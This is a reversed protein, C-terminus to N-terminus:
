KLGAAARLQRALQSQVACSIAKYARNLESTRLDEPLQEVHRQLWQRAEGGLRGGTEVVFATLQTGPYRAHKEREGRRAAEGPKRAAVGLEAMSGAMATRVSVDIWRRCNDTDSYEIDLIARELVPEGAANRKMRDWALVRQETQVKQKTWRHIIGGISGALGSHRRLVGGGSQCVTAEYGEDDLPKGCIVGTITRNTCTASAAPLERQACEARPMALRQRVATSWSVDEMTCCEDDPYQLFGGAGPGGASVFSAKAKLSHLSQLEAALTKRQVVSLHLRQKFHSGLAEPLLAGRDVTAGQEQLKARAADLQSAIRPLMELLTTITSCGQDARVEDIVATWASWFAANKRTGAWQVGVGGMKTPLGMKSCSSASLPRELLEEWAKKLAKDYEDVEADAAIALQLANQSASGAYSRLLAAVAQRKLGAKMLQALGNWLKNLRVTAQALAGGDAGLLVPSSDIDGAAKM